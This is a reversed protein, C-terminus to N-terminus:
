VRCITRRLVGDKTQSGPQLTAPIEADGRKKQLMKLAPQIAAARHISANDQVIVVPKSVKLSHRTRKWM